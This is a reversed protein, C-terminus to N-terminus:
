KQKKCRWRSMQVDTLTVYAVDAATYDPNFIITRNGATYRFSKEQVLPFDHEQGNEDKAYLKNLEIRFDQQGRQKEARDSGFRVVVAEAQECVIGTLDAARAPAIVVMITMALLCSRCLLGSIGRRSFDRSQKVKPECHRNMNM